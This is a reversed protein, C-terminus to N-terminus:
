PTTRYPNTEKATFRLGAQWGEDWATAMLHQAAAELIERAAYVDNIGVHRELAAAASEIAEDTINVSSGM